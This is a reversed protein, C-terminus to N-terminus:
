VNIENLMEFDIHFLDAIVKNSKKNNEKAWMPQLNDLAFLAIVEGRTKAMSLPHKHDINWVKCEGKSIKGHNEFTMGEKLQPELHEKLEKTGYGVIECYSAGNKDILASLRASLYCRFKYLPDDERKQKEWKQREQKHTTRYQREYEKRQPTQAYKRSYAVYKPTKTYERREKKHTLRYNKFYEKKKPTRNYERQRQKVEPKNKYRKQSAKIKDPNNKAWQKDYEKKHDKRKAAREKVEPRARYEKGQIKIEQKHTAYYQKRYEKHHQKIEPRADYERMYEKKQKAKREKNIPNANYKRDREKQLLKSEPKERYRKLKAKVKEPNNQAWLKNYARKEQKHLLDYQRQHERREEITQTM